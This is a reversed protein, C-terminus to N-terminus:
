VSSTPQGETWSLALRQRVFARVYENGPYLFCPLCSHFSLRVGWFASLLSYKQWSVLEESNNNMIWDSLWTRSKTVGHVAALWAEADKGTEQLKSLSMDITDTIGDLWKMRTGKEQRWDKAADPDKRILWNKADPPWLIPAEAEADTKRILIWSQNGKPSVPKIERCDLLSLFRRWCWLEFADIRQHEAKKITRSECRYM